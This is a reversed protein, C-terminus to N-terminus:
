ALRGFTLNRYWTIPRVEAGGAPTYRDMNGVAFALLDKSDPSIIVLRIGGNLRYEIRNPATRRWEFRLHIWERPRLAIGTSWVDVVHNKHGPEGFWAQGAGDLNYTGINLTANGGSGPKVQFDPRLWGAYGAGVIPTGIAKHGSQPSMIHLGGAGQPVTDNAFQIDVEFFGKAWREGDNEDTIVRLAEANNKMIMIGPAQESFNLRDDGCFGGWLGSLAQYGSYCEGPEPEPEPEPDPGPGPGTTVLQICPGLEGIIVNAEAQSYGKALLRQNFCQQIQANEISSLPM